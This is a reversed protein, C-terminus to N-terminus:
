TLIYDIRSRRNWNQGSRCSVGERDPNNERWIDYFSGTNMFEVFEEDRRRAPDADLEGKAVSNFDGM